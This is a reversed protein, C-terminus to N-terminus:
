RDMTVLGDVADFLRIPCNLVERGQKVVGDLADRIELRGKGATRFVGVLRDEAIPRGVACRKEREPAPTVCGCFM